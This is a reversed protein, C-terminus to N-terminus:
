PEVEETPRALAEENESVSCIYTWAMETEGILCRITRWLAGHEVKIAREWLTSRNEPCAVRVVRPRTVKPYPYAVRAGDDDRM